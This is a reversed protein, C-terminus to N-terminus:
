EKRETGVEAPRNKTDESPHYYRLAEPLVSKIYQIRRQNSPHSSLFEPVFRGKKHAAMRKWFAVAERPDYGAMATFILGLRDAEQEHLRSYPLLIGYQAGVGFVTMWLRRTEQPKKKMATSMAAEGRGALLAQSMRENGHRAVVHAIEHGLVIALGTEDRTVPLIGTYVVVKGGPMSWANVEDSEVLNFEWQYDKLRDAMGHDRMYREVAQQIRKGVRQVMEVKERDSSLKHKNLFDRYQQWSMRIMTKSSILDLQRRGTLPVTACSVLTLLIGVVLFGRVLRNM